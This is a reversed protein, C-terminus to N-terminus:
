CCGGDDSSCNCDCNLKLGSIDAGSPEQFVRLDFHDVVALIHDFIDAQIAEYNAWVKDKCFVYVQIPLGKSTPDLHRILFTMDQNIMPHNRLYAAVYARFTGVNTLRRGNILESDDVKAEANFKAVDETTKEIYDAIYQFKKFRELMEATCFKISTMDIYLTRKIRRGGSESMGRWNRFSDSILAYAPITAITKDWNQVKVTMLSIDIVDGDAGYKPMEIWDGIHIMNNATLQIGAMFGLISDKFVLLLVATMAGLGGILASPNKGLLMSILSIGAFTFIIIKIVQVFGRIPMKRAFDFTRYIDVVSNLFADVVMLGIVMAYVMAAHRMFSEGAAYEAFVVPAMAYIVLVPALHSLRSFVNNEILVDDWKIKSKRIIHTIYRLLYRKAIFNALWALLVVTSIGAIRVATREVFTLGMLWDVMKDM